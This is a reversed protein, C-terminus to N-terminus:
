EEERHALLPHLILMEARECGGNWDFLGAAKRSSLRGQRKRKM